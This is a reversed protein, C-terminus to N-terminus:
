KVSSQIWDFYKKNGQNIPLAIVECVDYSHIAEIEKKVKAFLSKKTKIVMMAERASDVKGKWLFFSEVGKIINACAILKKNLLHKAIKKAELANKTTVLVVVYM